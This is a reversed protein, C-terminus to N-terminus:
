PVRVRRIHPSTVGSRRGAEPEAGGEAERTMWGYNLATRMLFLRTHVCLADNWTRAYRWAVVAGTFKSRAFCKARPLKLVIM